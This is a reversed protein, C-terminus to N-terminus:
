KVPTSAGLERELKELSQQAERLWPLAADNFESPLVPQRLEAELEQSQQHVEDMQSRFGDDPWYFASKPNANVPGPNSEEVPPFENRPPVWRLAAATIGGLALLLVAAILWQRLRWMLPSVGGARWASSQGAPGQPLPHTDPQQLHALYSGLLEAVEKASQFRDAQKKALLKDIVGALWIPVDPNLSRVPRPREDCVRRLVAMASDARFPPHGTCMAYLVSGLSFLDARHDVAEGAAQEPAMYQPTGAIVGSQTLSADDVARALGFDTLKVREVGNELLINAPKVDRHVLGQAHAAALGSATQMAIRLIERVGLPGEADLREQLSRGNVFSMVLYPLGKWTDVGHIAVVHEHVVAAAAQAERAFRKRAAGSSAFYPALVKIAVPRNLGTDIGQFVIGMGGRGLVATIAFPGLRGLHAPDDAHDLFDLPLGVEYRPPPNEWEPEPPCPPVPDTSAAFLKPWTETLPIRRLEDWWPKDAALGELAQQCHQCHDLHGMLESQELVPLREQLLLQLREPDCPPYRQAV